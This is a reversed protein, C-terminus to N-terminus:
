NSTVYAATIVAAVIELKHPLCNFRCIMRIFNPIRKLVRIMVITRTNIRCAKTVSWRYKTFIFNCWGALSMLKMIILSNTLDRGVNIQAISCLINCYHMQVSVAVYSKNLSDTVLFLAPGLSTYHIYDSASLRYAM